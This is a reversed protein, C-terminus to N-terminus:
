DKAQQVMRETSYITGQWTGQSTRSISVFEKQTKNSPVFSEVGLTKQNREGDFNNLFFNKKARHV